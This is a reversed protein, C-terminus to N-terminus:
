AAATHLRRARFRLGCLALAVLALTAPEPADAFIGNSGGSTASGTFSGTLALMDQDPSYSFWLVSDPDYSPSNPDFIDAMAAIWPSGFSTFVPDQLDGIFLNRDPFYSLVPLQAQLFVQAGSGITLTAAASDTSFLFSGDLMPGVLKSDPVNVSAGLVPDGSFGTATMIDDAFTLTQTGADFSVSDGRSKGENKKGDKPQAVDSILEYTLPTSGQMGFGPQGQTPSYSVKETMREKGAPEKLAFAGTTIILDFINDKPDGRAKSCGALVDNAADPEKVQDIESCFTIQTAGQVPKNPVFTITDSLNGNLGNVCSYVGNNNQINAGSECLLLTGGAADDIIQIPNTQGEAFTYSPAAVAAGTSYVWSVISLLFILYRSM